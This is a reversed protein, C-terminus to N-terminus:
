FPPLLIHSLHNLYGDKMGLHLRQLLPDQMEGAILLRLNQLSELSDRCGALSEQTSERDTFLESLDNRM